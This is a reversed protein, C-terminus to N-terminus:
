NVYGLARLEKITDKGPKIASDPVPIAGSIEKRLIKKLRATEDPLSAALDEDEGPDGALDYLEPGSSHVRFIPPTKGSTEGSNIIIKKDGRQLSYKEDGFSTACALIDRAELTRGDLPNIGEWKSPYKKIDALAAVLPAIDTQLVQGPITTAKGGPLRVMLPIELLENYLSHGHGFGGHEWFEEGHDGTLIIVSNELLERKKLEDFLRNLLNQVYLVQGDYLGRLYRRTTQDAGEGCTLKIVRDYKIGGPVIDAAVTEPRPPNWSNVNYPLHLDMFHLMAFFPKKEQRHLQRFFESIVLEGDRTPTVVLQDFGQGFGFEDTLYPNGGNIFSTRYGHESLLEPLTLLSRPLSSLPDRAGHRVPSLSTLITAMAPKTWPAAAWAQEFSISEEKARGLSGDTIQAFTDARLCDIVIFVINPSKDPVDTSAIGSGLNILLVLVIVTITFVKTGKGWIKRALRGSLFFLLACAAIICSFLVIIEPHRGPLELLYSLGRGGSFMESMRRLSRAVALPLSYITLHSILLKATYVVFAAMGALIAWRGTNKGPLFRRGVAQILLYGAATALGYVMGQNIGSRLTLLSTRYLGQSIYNNLIITWVSGALGALVMAGFIIAAGVTPKHTKEPM